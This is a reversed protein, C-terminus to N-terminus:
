RVFARGSRSTAQASSGSSCNTMDGRETGVGDIADAEACHLERTRSHETRGPIVVRRHGHQPTGDVKTNVVDVRRLVVSGVHGVCQDPLSQMGVGSPSTRTELTPAWSVVPAPPKRRLSGFLQAAADLVVQAGEGDVAEPGDVQPWIIVARDALPDSSSWSAPHRSQAVLALDGADTNM